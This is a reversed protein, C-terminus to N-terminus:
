LNAPEEFVVAFGPFHKRACMVGVPFCGMYGPDSQDPNSGPRAVRAGGDVVELWRKKRGLRRNCCVCHSFGDGTYEPAWKMPMTDPTSM